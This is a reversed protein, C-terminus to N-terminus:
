CRLYLVKKIVSIVTSMSVGMLIQIINFAFMSLYIDVHVVFISKSICIIINIFIPLNVSM